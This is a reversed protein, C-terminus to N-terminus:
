GPNNTAIARIGELISSTPPSAFVGGAVGATLMGTGIYGACFPEHGSGGGLNTHVFSLFLFNALFLFKNLDDETPFEFM